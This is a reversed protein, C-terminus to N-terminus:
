WLSVRIAEGDRDVFDVLRSSMTALKKTLPTATARDADTMCALSGVCHVPGAPSSPVRNWNQVLALRLRGDSRDEILVDNSFNILVRAEPVKEGNRTTTALPDWLFVRQRNVALFVILAVVAVAVVKRM